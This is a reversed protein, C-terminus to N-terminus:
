FGHFAMDLASVIKDHSASLNTVPEKLTSVPIAAMFQTVLIHEEGEIDFGPNLRKAPLPALSKAMLPISISGFPQASIVIGAIGVDMVEVFGYILKSCLPRSLRLGASFSSM